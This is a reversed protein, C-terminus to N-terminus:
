ILFSPFQPAEPKQLADSNPKWSMLVNRGDCSLLLMEITPHWDVDQVQDGNLHGNHKFLLEAAGDEVDEHPQDKGINRIDWIYVVCDMGASALIGDMHPSWRVCNIKGEHAFNEYLPADGPRRTDWLKLRNDTGGTALLHPSFPSLAASNVGEAYCQLEAVVHLAPSLVLVCGNELAAVIRDKYDWTIENVITNTEHVRVPTDSSEKLDWLIIKGDDAGSVLRSKSKPDWALGFGCASHGKLTNIPKQESKNFIYVNGSNAAFAAFLAQDSNCQRLKQIEGTMDPSNETNEVLPAHWSRLQHQSPRLKETDIEVEKIEDVDAGLSYTAVIARQGEFDDLSWQATLSPWDLSVTDLREYLHKANERWENLQEHVKTEEKSTDTAAESM